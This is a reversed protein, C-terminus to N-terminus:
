VSVGNKLWGEREFMAGPVISYPYLFPTFPEPCDEDGAALVYKVSHEEM